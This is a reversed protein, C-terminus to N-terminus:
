IPHMIFLSTINQVTGCTAIKTYKLKYFCLETLYKLLIENCILKPLMLTGYTYIKGFQTLYNALWVFQERFNQNDRTIANTIANSALM